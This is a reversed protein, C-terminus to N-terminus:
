VTGDEDERFGKTKGESLNKKFEAMVRDEKQAEKIKDVLLPQVELAALFGELVVELRLDKFAKIEKMYPRSIYGLRRQPKSTGCLIKMMLQCPVRLFLSPM